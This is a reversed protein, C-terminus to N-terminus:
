ARAVTDEIRLDGSLIFIQEIDRHRHSPYKGGAAIRVLSTNYRKERDVYLIKAEVDPRIQRWPIEGSRALLIGSEEFLFGAKQPTERVKKMLRDKLGPPPAKPEAVATAVAIDAVVQNLERLEAQCPRCDRLHEEFVIRDSEELIGLS